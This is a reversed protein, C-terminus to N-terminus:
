DQQALVTKKHQQVHTCPGIKRQTTLNLKAVPPKCDLYYIINFLYGESITTSYAKKLVTSLKFQVSYSEM